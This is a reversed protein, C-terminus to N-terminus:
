KVEVTRGNGELNFTRASGGRTDTGPTASAIDTMAACTLVNNSFTVSYVGLALRKSSVALAGRVLAGNSRVVAFERNLATANATDALGFPSLVASYLAAYLLVRNM